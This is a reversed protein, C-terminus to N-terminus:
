FGLYLLRPTLSRFFTFNSRLPHTPTSAFFSNTLNILSSWDESDTDIQSSLLLVRRLIPHNRTIVEPVTFNMYPGFSVYLYIFCKFCRFTRSYVHFIFTFLKSMVISSPRPSSATFQLAPTSKTEVAMKKGATSASVEEPEINSASAAQIKEKSSLLSSIVVSPSAVEKSLSPTSILPATTERPSGLPSLDDGPLDDEM